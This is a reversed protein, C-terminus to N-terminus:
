TDRGSASFEAVYAEMCAYWVKRPRMIRLSLELSSLQGNKVNPFDPASRSDVSLAKYLLLKRGLRRFLRGSRKTAFKYKEAPLILRDITSPLNTLSTLSVSSSM